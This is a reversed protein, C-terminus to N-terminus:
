FFHFKIKNRFANLQYWHFNYISTINLEHQCERHYVQIFGVKKLAQEIYM